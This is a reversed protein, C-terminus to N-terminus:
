TRDPRSWAFGGLEENTETGTLHNSYNSLTKMAVGLMVELAQQPQFGASFFRSRTGEDIWGRAQIVSRTFAALADLRSDSMRQGSRLADVEGSPLGAMKTAVMSHAAVCFECGNEVSAALLVVQREAASLTTKDFQASLGLYAELVAPAEALHAYLNPVFGMGRKAKELLPRAAPPATEVSHRPFGTM